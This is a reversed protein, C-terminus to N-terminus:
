NEDHGSYDILSCDFSVAFDPLSSFECYNDFLLVFLESWQLELGREPQRLLKGAWVLSRQENLLDMDFREGPKFHINSNYTWLQVKTKASVVGPETSKGLDKIQDLLSPIDNHDPHFKPTHDRIGKLLLEYRLLRPIPRNIFSKMDLRHADPHRVCQQPFSDSPRRTERPFWGSVNIFADFVANNRMEEDIRYAAIPYNPIYELYADRFNLVADMVPAVISHVLPYEERQITHLKELLRAHHSLLERYNHFVDEIFQDLTDPDVIPSDASRLPQIYM